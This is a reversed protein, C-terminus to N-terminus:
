IWSSRRCAPKKRSVPQSRPVTGPRAQRPKQKGLKVSPRQGKKAEASEFRGPVILAVEARVLAAQLELEKAALAQELEQIRQAAATERVRPRGAPRPRIADLAGRLALERLQHFRTEGIGLQECAELLRVQGYLTDFIAKLRAKDEAAADLKDLYEMGAPYRGRM